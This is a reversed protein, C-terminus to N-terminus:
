LCNASDLMINAHKFVIAEKNVMCLYGDATLACTIGYQSAVSVFEKEM